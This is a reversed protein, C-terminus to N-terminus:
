GHPQDAFGSLRSGMAVVCRSGNSYSIVLTWDGQRDEWIEMIQDPNRLGQWALTTGFQHELSQRMDDSLGCFVEAIPGPNAQAPSASAALLLAALTIKTR